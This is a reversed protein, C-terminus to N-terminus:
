EHPDLTYEAQIDITEPLEACSIIGDEWNFVTGDVVGLYYTSSTIHDIGICISISSDNFRELLQLTYCMGLVTCFNCYQNEYVLEWPSPWTSRDWPDAHIAVQPAKSYIKTIEQLPDNNSDLESRIERWKQLRDEYNKGFM